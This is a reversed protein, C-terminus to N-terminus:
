TGSPLQKLAAVMCCGCNIIEGLGLSIDGPHMGSAGNPLVFPENLAYVEGKGSM